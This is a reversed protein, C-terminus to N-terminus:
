GKGIGSNNGKRKERAVGAGREGGGEGKGLVVIKGRGGRERWEREKDVAVGINSDLKAPDNEM